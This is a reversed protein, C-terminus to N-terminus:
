FLEPKLIFGPTIKLNLGTQDQFRVTISHGDPGATYVELWAVVKGKIEGFRIFRRGAFQRVTTKGDRTTVSVPLNALQRRLQGKRKKSGRAQKM